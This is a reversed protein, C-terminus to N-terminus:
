HGTTGIFNWHNQIQENFEIVKKYHPHDQRLAALEDRAEQFRMNHSLLEVYRIRAYIHQPYLSLFRELAELGGIVDKQGDPSHFHSLGLWARDNGPNLLVATEFDTQQGNIRGKFSYYESGIHLLSILPILIM